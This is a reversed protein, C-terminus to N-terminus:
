GDLGSFLDLEPTGDPKELPVPNGTAADPETLLIQVKGEIKDLEKEMQKALRIGEEFCALADERTIDNQRIASSLEELRALRQEFTKDTKKM